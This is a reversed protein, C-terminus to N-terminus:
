NLQTYDANPLVLTEANRDYYYPYDSLVENPRVQTNNIDRVMEHFLAADSCPSEPVIISEHISSPLVYYNKELKEGIMKLVGDYLLCSAGCNGVENTLVYMPLDSLDVEPLDSCDSSEMKNIITSMNTFNAPLLSATNISACSFLEDVSVKWIALLENSILAMPMGQSSEEFLIYFVISLDLYPIHPIDELLKLNEQTNILSYIIRPKIEDFNLIDYEVHLKPSMQYIKLIEAIVKSLDAGKKYEAYYDELYITPAENRGAEQFTIGQKLIGNNKLAECQTLTIDSGLMKQLQLRVEELFEKYNM